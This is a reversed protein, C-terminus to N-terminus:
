PFSRSNRRELYRALVRLEQLRTAHRARARGITAYMWARHWLRKMRLLRPLKHTLFDREYMRVEAERRPTREKEGFGAYLKEYVLTGLTIRWAPRPANLANELWARAKERERQLISNVQAWDIPAVAANWEEETYDPSLMCRQLGVLGLLSDFRTRGREPPAVCLFPRNFMLAYCVGHFSDTIFFACDRINRVWQEPSVDRAIQGTGFRRQMEEFDVQADVMNVAQAGCEASIAAIHRRIADNPELVYSLVYPMEQRKTGECLTDYDEMRCLFVPDLLWEGEIGYHERLIDVGSKERVSVADFAQLCHRARAVSEAPREETEIGFSSAFAVKRKDGQVFDLFYALGYYHTYRWRWVQDSGIIFTDLSDNLADYDGDDRLPESCAIRHKRMFRRSVNDDEMYRANPHLPAYDLLVPRRGMEELLRYLAYTTLIAGYNCSFWLTAVGTDRKRAETQPMSEMRTHYCRHQALDLARQLSARPTPERFSRQPM